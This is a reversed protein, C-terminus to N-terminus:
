EALREALQPVLSEVAYPLSLVSSYIMAPATMDGTGTSDLFIDRGDQAVALTQYLPDAKIAEADEPTVTWILIDTDFLPLQEKSISGYFADGAADALAQPLTFGLSTLLRQREHQPGSFFYSDEGAPSAIVATKGAFEPHAAATDALLQETEAILTEAEESKGLAQAIMRTQAQWPVGFDVYEDTQPLTPAIQALLEYEAPTLGASVALILDPNLAVVSEFNMEGYPLNLVAIEADGAAAEAWPWIQDESDGFYYRVAIPVVGLALTPDQDSFGLATVRKPETEITTSGFKHEITVPFAGAGSSSEAPASESSVGEVPASDPAIAVCGSLVGLLLVGCLFRGISIKLM